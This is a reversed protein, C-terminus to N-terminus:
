QVDWHQLPQLGHITVTSRKELQIRQKVAYARVQSNYALAKVLYDGM